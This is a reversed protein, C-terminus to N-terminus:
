RALTAASRGYHEEEHHLHALWGARLLATGRHVNAKVTGSPQNLVTAVEPYTLGDIHRLIVAPRYRGPLGTVLAALIAATETREATAEPQRTEDDALVPAAMREEEDGESQLPVTPPRQGRARNRAVNLAIRYLWPRLALARIREPDYGQLARYARVFADQAIEEADRRDGCLRLAFAFLRGQYALVLQEFSGDLDTALDATLNDSRTREDLVPADKGSM